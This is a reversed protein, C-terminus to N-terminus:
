LREEGAGFIVLEDIPHQLPGGGSKLESLLPLHVHFGDVYDGIACRIMVEAIYLLGKRNGNVYVDGDRLQIEYWGGESILEHPLEIPQNNPVTFRTSYEPM